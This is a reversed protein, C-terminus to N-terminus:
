SFFSITGSSVGKEEAVTCGGNEKAVTCGGKEEAVTCGGKEEALEAVRRKLWKTAV